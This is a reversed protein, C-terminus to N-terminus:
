PRFPSKFMSWMSFQNNFGHFDLPCSLGLSPSCVLLNFHAFPFHTGHSMSPLHSSAPETIPVRFHNPLFAESCIDNPKPKPVRPFQPTRLLLQVPTKLM